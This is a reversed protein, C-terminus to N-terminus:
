NSKEAYKVSIWGSDTADLDMRLQYWNNKTGLLRFKDGPYVKGLKEFNTGPGSRVNVYGTKDTDVVTVYSGTIAVPSPSPEPTPTPIPAVQTQGALKVNITLKYGAVAKASIIRETFGPATVVIQHDGPIM